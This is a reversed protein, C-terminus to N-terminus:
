FEWGGPGDQGPRIESQSNDGDTAGREWLALDIDEAATAAGNEDRILNALEPDM